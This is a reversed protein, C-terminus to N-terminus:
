DALHRKLNYDIGFETWMCIEFCLENERTHKTKIHRILNRESRFAKTCFTCLYTENATSKAITEGQFFDHQELMHRIIFTSTPQANKVVYKAKLFQLEMDKRINYQIFKMML